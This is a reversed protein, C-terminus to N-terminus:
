CCIESSITGIGYYKRSSIRALGFASQGPPDRSNLPLAALVKGMQRLEERITKVLERETLQPNYKQNMPLAKAM